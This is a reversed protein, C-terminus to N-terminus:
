KEEDTLLRKGNIISNNDSYSQNKNTSIIDNIGKNFSEISRKIRLM